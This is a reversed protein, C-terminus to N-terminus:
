TSMSWRSSVSKESPIKHASLFWKNKRPKKPAKTKNRKSTKSDAEEKESVQNHESPLEPNRLGKKPSKSGNENELLLLPQRLETKSPV